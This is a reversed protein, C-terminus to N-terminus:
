HTEVCKTKDTHEVIFILGCLFNIHVGFFIKKFVFIVRDITFSTRSNYALVM